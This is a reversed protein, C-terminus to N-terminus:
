IFQHTKYEFLFNTVAQQQAQRSHNNIYLKRAATSQIRITSFFDNEEIELLVLLNEIFINKGIQNFSESFNFIIKTITIKIDTGIAGLIIHDTTLM